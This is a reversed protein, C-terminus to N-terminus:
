FILHVGTWIGISAIANSGAHFLIPYIINRTYIMLWGWVLGYGFVTIPYAHGKFAWYATFLVLLVVVPIYGIVLFDKKKAFKKSILLVFLLLIWAPGRYLLEEKLPAIIVFDLVGSFSSLQDHYYSSLTTKLDPPQDMVLDHLLVTLTIPLMFVMAKMAPHYERFPRCLTM